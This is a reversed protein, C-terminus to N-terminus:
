VYLTASRGADLEREAQENMLVCWADHKRFLLALTALNTFILM